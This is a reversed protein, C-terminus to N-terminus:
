HAPTRRRSVKVLNETRLNLPNKDRYRVVEGRKAGMLIRALTATPREGPQRAASAAKATGCRVQAHGAGSVNLVWRSGYLASARAWTDPSLVMECGEGRAGFLAIFVVPKGDLSSRRVVPEGKPLKKLGKRRKRRTETEIAAPSALADTGETPVASTNNQM